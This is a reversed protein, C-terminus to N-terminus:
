TGIALSKEPILSPAKSALACKLSQSQSQSQEPEPEPMSESPSASWPAVWFLLLMGPIALGTCVFFFAIWGIQEVIAGTTANALSRPLAALATFLAFQTAAFTKSSERAIFATFAATGLGVGLYEFGIVAALIWLVPGVSALWAYGLISAMQVAGFLWLARNIGLRIMLLGGLLGGIIAPWLAANKAM